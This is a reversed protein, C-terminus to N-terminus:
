MYLLIYGYTGVTSVINNTNNEQQPLFPNVPKKVRAKRKEKAGLSSHAKVAEDM